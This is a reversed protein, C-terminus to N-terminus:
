MSLTGFTKKVPKSMSKGSLDSSNYYRAIFKLHRQGNHLILSQGLILCNM